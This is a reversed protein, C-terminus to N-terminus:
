GEAFLPMQRPDNATQQPPAAKHSPLGAPLEAIIGLRYDNQIDEAIRHRPTSARCAGVIQMFTWGARCGNLIASRWSKMGTWEVAFTEDAMRQAVAEGLLRDQHQATILARIERKLRRLPEQAEAKVRSVALESLWVLADPYALCVMEYQKGDAGTTMMLTVVAESEPSTLKRHQPQWAVKLADCIPRIPV